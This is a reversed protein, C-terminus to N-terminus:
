WSAVTDYEHLIKKIQRATSYPDVAGTVTLNITPGPTVVPRPYGLRAPFAPRRAATLDPSAVGYLLGSTDPVGLMLPAFNAGYAFDTGLSGAVGDSSDWLSSVWDLANQIWGIVDQIKDIVLNFASNFLYAVKDPAQGFEWLWDVMYAIDKAVEQAMGDVFDRFWEFHQYAEYVALSVLGIATIVVGIPNANLAFNLATQAATWLKVATIVGYIVGTAIGVTTAIERFLEPNEGAWQAMEALKEAVDAAIPLLQEGLEARANEWEATAVQQAGAVSDIERKFQGTADATQEMLIAMLAQTEAATKAEGELEDLGEAALRAEIDAAKISVGYREIPDREGRMLSSLASVADATTGGFTAALDAGLTILDTTKGVIQDQETGLNKLQAGMVTALENYQNKSLGVSEAAADALAKIQDAQEKFVSEVAGTSQQLDSAADLAQKGLAVVGGTAISLPVALKEATKGVQEIGRATKDFGKKAGKADALIAISFSTKKSAAM